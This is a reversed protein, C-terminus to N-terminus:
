RRKDKSHLNRFSPAVNTREKEEEEVQETIIEGELRPAPPSTGPNWSDNPVVTFTATTGVAPYVVAQLADRTTIRLEHRFTGVDTPGGMDVPYIHVFICNQVSAGAPDYDITMDTLHKTLAPTTSGVPTDIATATWTAAEIGSVDVPNGGADTIVYYPVVDDGQYFEFDDTM